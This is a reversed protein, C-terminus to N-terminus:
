QNFYLFPDEAEGNYRIEFYLQAAQRTSEGASAILEGQHITQGEKVYNSYNNGYVSIINNKHQVIILNGYGSVANGSYLIEGSDIAVVPDGLNATIYIGHKYQSYQISERNIQKELPWHFNNNDIQRNAHITKKTQRELETNNQTNEFFYSTPKHKGKNQIVDPTIPTQLPVFERVSLTVSTFALIALLLTIALEKYSIHSKLLYGLHNEIGYLREDMKMVRNNLNMIFRANNPQSDTSKKEPTSTNKVALSLGNKLQKQVPSESNLMKSQTPM